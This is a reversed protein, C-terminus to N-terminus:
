YNEIGPCYGVEQLMELDYETRLRLRQAELLQGQSEFVKVREELEARIRGAAAKLRPQATVFQKAPWVAIRDLRRLTKGTLGEFRSLREIENGALEIRVGEEEYSPLIELVDGRVRFTGRRYDLDNRVYQMEVLRRLLESRPVQQGL